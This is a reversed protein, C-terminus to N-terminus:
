VESYVQLLFLLPINYTFDGTFLDVMQTTGVPEFGQVEPQTPGSTLAWAVVPFAIQYIMLFAMVVAVKQFFRLKRRISTVNNTKNNQKM